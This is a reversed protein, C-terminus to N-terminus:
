QTLSRPIRALLSSLWWVSAALAVGATIGIGNAILDKVEPRRTASLLGQGVEVGASLTTLSVILFLASTRRRFAAYGLMGAIGWLALHGLTDFAFPIDGRDVLDLGVLREGFSGVRQVVSWISKVLDPARDALSLLGIACLFGFFVFLRVFRSSVTM